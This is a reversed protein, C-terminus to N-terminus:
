VTVHLLGPCSMFIGPLHKNEILENQNTLCIQSLNYDHFVM